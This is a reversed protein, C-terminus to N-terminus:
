PSRSILCLTEKHENFREIKFYSNKHKFRIPTLSKPRFCDKSHFNGEQGQLHDYIKRTPKVLAKFEIPSLKKIFYKRTKISLEPSKSPFSFPKEHLDIKESIRKPVLSIRSKSQTPNESEQFFSHRSPRQNTCSKLLKCLKLDM